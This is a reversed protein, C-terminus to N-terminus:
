RGRDRSTLLKPTCWSALLLIGLAFQAGTGSDPVPSAADGTISLTLSGEAVGAVFVTEPKHKIWVLGSVTGDLLENALVPSVDLPPSIFGTIVGPNILTFTQSGLQVVADEGTGLIDDGIGGLIFFTVSEIKSFSGKVNFTFPTGPQTDFDGIKGIDLQKSVTIAQAPTLFLAILIAYFSKM